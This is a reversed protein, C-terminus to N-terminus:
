KPGEVRLRQSIREAGFLHWILRYAYTQFLGRSPRAARGTRSRNRRLRDARGWRIPGAIRAGQGRINARCDLGDGNIYSIVNMACGKGSGPQHSGSALRLPHTIRALAM